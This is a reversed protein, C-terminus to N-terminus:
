DLPLQVSSANHRYRGSRKTAPSCRRFLSPEAWRKKNANFHAFFAIINLSKCLLDKIFFMELSLCRYFRLNTM